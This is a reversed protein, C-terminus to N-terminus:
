TSDYQAIGKSHELALIFEVLKTEFNETILVSLGDKWPRAFLVEGPRNELETPRNGFSGTNGSALQLLLHRRHSKDQATM